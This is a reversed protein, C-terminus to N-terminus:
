KQQLSSVRPIDILVVAQSKDFGMLLKVLEAFRTLFPGELLGILNNNLNNRSM